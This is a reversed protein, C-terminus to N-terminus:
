RLKKIRRQHREEESFPSHIFLDVLHIAIPPSIFRGALCLVNANNDLRAIMVSHASYGLIARIKKHRNAAIVMGQGSGCILIGFNQPNKELEKALKKAYDPYDDTPELSDAGLDKCTTGQEELHNKILNKLKLGAHDAALYILQPNKNNSSMLKHYSRLYLM